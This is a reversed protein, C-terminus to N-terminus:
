VVAGHGVAIFSGERLQPLLQFPQSPQPRPQDLPELGSRTRSIQDINDEDDLRDDRRRAKGRAADGHLVGVDDLARCGSAVILATFAGVQSTSGIETSTTAPQLLVAPPGALGGVACSIRALGSVAFTLSPWKVRTAWITLPLTVNSAVPSPITTTLGWCADRKVICVVMAPWGRLNSSIMM